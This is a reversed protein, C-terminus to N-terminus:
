VCCDCQKSIIRGIKESFTLNLWDTKSILCQPDIKNMIDNLIFSMNLSRSYSVEDENTFTISAVAGTTSFDSLSTVTECERVEQCDLNQKDKKILCLVSILQERWKSPVSTLYGSLQEECSKCQTM